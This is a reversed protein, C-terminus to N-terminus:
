RLSEMLLGAAPSCVVAQPMLLKVFAAAQQSLAMGLSHGAVFPKLMTLM